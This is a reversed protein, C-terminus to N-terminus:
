ILNIHMTCLYMFIEYKSGRSYKISLDSQFGTIATPHPSIQAM